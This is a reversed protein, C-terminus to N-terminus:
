YNKANTIRDFPSDSVEAIGAGVFFLAQEPTDAIGLLTNVKQDSFAGSLWTNLGLATAVLQFTQSLHGVDFLAIRYARSHQYKGWIKDFRSTMFIGFSINESFYQGCFLTGPNTLMDANNIWHLSHLTPSYYYIGEALDGVDKVVLYAETPHLGGGSPSTKRMGIKEYGYKKYNEVSSHFDGFVTYLLTSLTLLSIKNKIFSRCTKRNKLITLFDVSSLISLDPPPLIIGETENLENITTNDKYNEECFVLYESIFNEPTLTENICVDTTISTGFHFIQSLVDWEWDVKIAHPSLLEAELLNKDIDNIENQLGSSIELLRELYAPELEYQEHKKFDWIILKGDRILLFLYPSIFLRDSLSNNLM